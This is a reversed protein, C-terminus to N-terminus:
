FAYRLSLQMQYFQIASNFVPFQNKRDTLTPNFTFVPGNANSTTHTLLALNTNPTASRIKGWDKRIFNAFNFIDLQVSLRGDQFEPLTQRLTVDLTNYWPNRCSGRDQIRGRQSRLCGNKGIFEEFAAAQQAATYAVGGFSANAFQIQSADTADTPIYIPDNASSGDANLDGRGSSGTYTYVFPTGSSGQYIFSLDTSKWPATFTGALVIRHPQDFASPATARDAQAGSLTRGFQWNSFAVSSTLDSVSFARGYTYAASGEWWDTFRKRLQGTVSYSYDRSQNKAELVADLRPDVRAFTAQGTANFTGFLTRGDAATGSQEVRNINEYVFNNMGRTYLGELTAVVGGPLERDIALTGRLVQPYKLDEGVLNITGPFREPNLTVGPEGNRGANAGTFGALPGCSTPAVAEPTFAPASGNANAPGCSLQGLAVGSNSYQNSMWVFAPQGQFLGLGGRVQTRAVDSLDWNFGVRPSFQVNGEPMVDTRRGLADEVLASYGPKDFFYPLDARVGATVTLRDTMRIVDQAYVAFQGATFRAVPDSGLSGSGSFLTARGAALDALSGFTWNGFSNQLFGNEVEYLENRTGVTITHRDRWPFTLNNTIELLNENLFNGQSNNETGARLQANNAGGVNQVTIMPAVVQPKRAFRTTTYSVQFENLAGNGLDSFLQAALSNATEERFFSHGSLPFIRNSGTSPRSFNDVGSNNYINRLVLRHKDNFRYDIRAFTNLIPNQNSVAGASGAEIGYGRLITTFSDVQAQTIPITPTATAAQGFFPGAAGRIDDSLEVAAFFHMKDKIIPGGLSGGYMLRLFDQGRIFPDDQAMGQNRNHFFVSGSFENTGSKTVANVLGGTFNGQRVDFPSILVQYEKVAEMTMSRGGAQAGLEQSDGLGFRNVVSAGDVQINNLRNNQGAVSIRSDEGPRVAVQPTLRVFDYLNRNLTPLRNLITDSVVTKTGQRTATFDAAADAEVRVATLEVSADQLVADVRTTQTIAVRVGAREFPALGVRRLRVTYEGNVDLAQILYRGNARTVGGASAGTRRDQVQVQVGELPRGSADTVLGAIAGTTNSQAGGTEPTALPLLVGLLACCWTRFRTSM